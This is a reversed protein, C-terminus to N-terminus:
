FLLYFHKGDTGLLKGDALAVIVTLYQHVVYAKVHEGQWDFSVIKCVAQNKRRLAQMSASRRGWWLAYVRQPTSTVDKIQMPNEEWIDGVALKLHRYDTDALKVMMSNGTLYDVIQIAPFLNFGIALRHNENCFVASGANVTWAPYRDSYMLRAVETVICSASDTQSRYLAQYGKMPQRGVFYTTSDSSRYAANVTQSMPYPVKSHTSLIFRHTNQMRHKDFDFLFVLPYTRDTVYSLKASDEFLLPYDIGNSQSPIRFYEDDFVLRNESELIRFTCLLESGWHNPQEYIVCLRNGAIQMEQILKIQPMSDVALRVVRLESQEAHVSPVIFMLSLLMLWKEVSSKVCKYKM